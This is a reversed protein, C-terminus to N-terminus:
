CWLLALTCMLARARARAFVCEREQVHVYVSVSSGREHLVPHESIETLVAGCVCEEVQPSHVDYVGPGLDKSYGAAALASVM